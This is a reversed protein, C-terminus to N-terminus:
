CSQNVEIVNHFNSYVLYDTLTINRQHATYRAIEELLCNGVAGRTYIGHTAATCRCKHLTVRMKGFDYSHINTCRGAGFAPRVVLVVDGVDIILM